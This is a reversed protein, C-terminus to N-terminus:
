FQVILTIIYALPNDHSVQHEYTVEDGHVLAHSYGFAVEVHLDGPNALNGHATTSALGTVNYTLETEHGNAIASTTRGFSDYSYSRSVTTDDSTVSTLRGSDDYVYTVVDDRRNELTKIRGVEDYTYDVERGLKDTYTKLNGDRDYM